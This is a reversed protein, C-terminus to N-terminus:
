GCRNVLEADKEQAGIGHAANRWKKAEELDVMTGFGLEYFEAVVFLHGYSSNNDASYKYNQFAKVHDLTGINHEYCFGLICKFIQRYNSNELRKVFEEISINSNKLYGRIEQEIQTYMTGRRISEMFIKSVGNLPGNNNQSIQM